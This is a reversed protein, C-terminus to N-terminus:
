DTVRLIIKGVTQRSELAEHARHAEALPVVRDIHLVLTGAKIAALVARSRRQLDAHSAIHNQLSGGSLTLSKAGLAHPVIPDAPGSASGFVVIHGHKAAAELDDPLTTKAVGDFILDAGRGDTIRKVEDAFNRETYVIVHDAGAQKAAAAKENTSVTGIVRAGYYRAWQVVLRGVGGAAAHVLVTDGRRVRRFDHILYHATMGQLPFAAGEEFSFDKPLKILRETEIATYEAYSGLHGTYAVRDGPRVATVGPGIEEVVGAAELGPIFPLRVPYTGRRHYIDVFNVGAASIRVLATGATPVPKPADDTLALVSPDGHRDVRIARM